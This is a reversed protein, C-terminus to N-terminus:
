FCHLNRGKEIEEGLIKITEDVLHQGFNGNGAVFKLDGWPRYIIPNSPGYVVVGKLNLLGALHSIGSDCGLYGSSRSLLFILRKLPQNVLVKKNELPPLLELEAEGILYVVEFGRDRLFKELIFFNELPWRKKKGGSGPHFIIYPKKENFISIEDDYYHIPLYIRRAVFEMGLCDFPHKYFWEKEPLPPFTKIKKNITGINANTFFFLDDVDKYSSEEPNTFLKFVDKDDADIFSIFNIGEFLHRYLYNGAFIIKKYRDKLSFLFPLFSLTDGLAGKRYIFVRETM